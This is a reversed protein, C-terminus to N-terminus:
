RHLARAPQVFSYKLLLLLLLQLGNYLPLSLTLTRECLVRLPAHTANRCRAAHQTTKVAYRLTRLVGCRVRNSRVKLLGVNQINCYYRDDITQPVNHLQHTGCRIRHFNVVENLLLQRCAFTTLLILHLVQSISLVLHMSV